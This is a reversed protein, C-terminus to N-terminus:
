TLSVNATTYTEAGSESMLDNYTYDMFEKSWQQALEEVDFELNGDPTVTDGYVDALSGDARKVQSNQTLSFLSHCIDVYEFQKGVKGDGDVQLDGKALQDVFDVFASGAPLQGRTQQRLAEAAAKVTNTDSGTASLSAQIDAAAADRDQQLMAEAWSRGSANTQPQQRTLLTLCM